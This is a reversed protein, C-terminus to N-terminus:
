RFMLLSVWLSFFSTNFTFSAFFFPFHSLSSLFQLICGMAYEIAVCGDLIYFGWQDIEAECECVQLKFIYAM